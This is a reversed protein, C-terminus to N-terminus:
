QVFEDLLTGIGVSFILPDRLLPIVGKMYQDLRTAAQNKAFEAVASNGSFLHIDLQELPLSEELIQHLNSNETFKENLEELIGTQFQADGYQAHSKLITTLAEKHKKFERIATRKARRSNNGNYNVDIWKEYARIVSQFRCILEAGNSLEGITDKQKRFNEKFQNLRINHRTADELERSGFIERYSLTELLAAPKTGMRIIICADMLHSSMTQCEDLQDKVKGIYNLENRHDTPNSGEQTLKRTLVILHQRAAMVQTRLQQAYGKKDALNQSDRITQISQFWQTLPVIKKVEQVIKSNQDKPEFYSDIAQDVTKRLIVSSLTEIAEKESAIQQKLSEPSIPPNKISSVLADLVSKFQVEVSIDELLAKYIGYVLKGITEGHQDILAKEINEVTSPVQFYTRVADVDKLERLHKVKVLLHCLSQIEKVTDGDVHVEPGQEGGPNMLGQYVGALQQRIARYTTLEISTAQGRKTRVGDILTTLIDSENIIKRALINVARNPFYELAYLPIALMKLPIRAPHKNTWALFDEALTVRPLYENVLKNAVLEKLQADTKGDWFSPDKSIREMIEELSGVPLRESSLETVKSFMNRIKSLIRNAMGFGAIEPNLAPTETNKFVAVNRRVDTLVTQTTKDILRNSFWYLFSLVHRSSFLFKKFLGLDDDESIKKKFALIFAEKPSTESLELYESDVIGLVDRFDYPNTKKNLLLNILLVTSYSSYTQVFNEKAFDTDARADEPSAPRPPVELMADTIPQLQVQDEVNPGSYVGVGHMSLPPLNRIVEALIEWAANFAEESNNLNQKVGTLAEQVRQLLNHTQHNGTNAAVLANVGSEVYPIVFRALGKSIPSNMLQKLQDMFDNNQAVPASESDDNVIALRALPQVHSSLLNLAASGAQNLGWRAASAAQNLGWNIARQYYAAPAPTGQGYVAAYRRQDRETPGVLRSSVASLFLGPYASYPARAPQPPPASELSRAPALYGTIDDAADFNIPCYM